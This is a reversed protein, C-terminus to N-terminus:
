QAEKMRQECLELLAKYRNLRRLSGMSSGELNWAILRAHEKLFFERWFDVKHLLYAHLEKWQWPTRTPKAAVVEGKAIARNELSHWIFLLIAMFGGSCLGVLITDTTM